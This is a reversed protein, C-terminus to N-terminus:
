TMLRKLLQNCAMGSSRASIMALNLSGRESCLTLAPGSILSM